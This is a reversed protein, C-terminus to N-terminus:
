GGGSVASGEVMLRCGDCVVREEDLFLTIRKGSMENPGESLVPDETLVVEGSRADLVARGGVAVREGRTVRVSGSAEAKDVQDADLMRVVLEDCTLTVEGRVATVGGTFLITRSRMDWESRPADIELPPPPAKAGSAGRDELSAEVVEARVIGEDDVVAQAARVELGQELRLSVGELRARHEPPPTPEAACALLLLIM